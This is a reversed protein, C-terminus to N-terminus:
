CVFLDVVESIRQVPSTDRARLAENRLDSPGTFLLALVYLLLFVHRALVWRIMALDGWRAIAAINRRLFAERKVFVHNPQILLWLFM